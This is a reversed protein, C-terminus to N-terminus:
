VCFDIIISAYFKTEKTKNKGEIRTRSVDLHGLILDVRDQVASAQVLALAAAFLKMKRNKRRVIQIM